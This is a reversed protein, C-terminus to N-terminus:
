CLEKKTWRGLSVGGVLVFMISLFTVLPTIGGFKVLFVLTVALVIGVVFLLTDLRKKM